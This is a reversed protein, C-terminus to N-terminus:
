LLKAVEELTGQIFEGNTGVAGNSVSTKVTGGPPILLKKRYTNGTNLQFYTQTLGNDVVSEGVEDIINGGVSVSILWYNSGTLLPQAIDGAYGVLVIFEDTDNTFGNIGSQFYKLTM